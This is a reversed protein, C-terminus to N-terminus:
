LYDRVFPITLRRQEALSAYDLRDLVAYLAHMDRPCRQLLYRAVEAPLAFGRQRARHQLACMKEDDTLEQLQMVLGWSLRSILDPLRLTLHSPLVTSGVILRTKHESLRNFLHFIAEEWEASGGICHVDDL